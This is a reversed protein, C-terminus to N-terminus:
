ETLEKVEQRGQWRNQRGCWVMAAWFLSLNSYNNTRCEGINLIAWVGFSNVGVRPLKM